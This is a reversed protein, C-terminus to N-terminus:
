VTASLVANRLEKRAKKILYRAKPNDGAALDLCGAVFAVTLPRRRITQDDTQASVEFKAEYARLENEIFEPPNLTYELLLRAFPSLKKAVEALAEMVEYDGLINASNKDEFINAGIYDDEDSPNYLDCELSAHSHGRAAFYTRLMSTVKNNCAHTLYTSLKSQNEDWSELSIVFVECFISFLEEADIQYGVQTLRGINKRSLSHLLRYHDKYLQDKNM